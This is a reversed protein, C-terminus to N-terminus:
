KNYSKKKKKMRKVRLKKLCSSERIYVFLVNHEHSFVFEHYPTFIFIFHCCRRTIIGHTTDPQTFLIPEHHVYLTANFVERKQLKPSVRRVATHQVRNRYLFFFISIYLYIHIKTCTYIHLLSTIVPIIISSRTM